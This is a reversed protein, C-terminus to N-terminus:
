LSETGEESSGKEKKLVEEPDITEYKKEEEVLKMLPKVENSVM